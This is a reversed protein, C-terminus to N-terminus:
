PMAVLLVKVVARAVDRMDRESLNPQIPLTLSSRGLAAAVRLQTPVGPMGEFARERYIEACGGYGCPIGEANIASYSFSAM